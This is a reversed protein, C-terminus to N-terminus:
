TCDMCCILGMSFEFVRESPFEMKVCVPPLLNRLHLFTFLRGKASDSTYFTLRRFDCLVSTIRNM